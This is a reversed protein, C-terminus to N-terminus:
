EKPKNEPLPGLRPVRYEEGSEQWVFGTIRSKEGIEFKLQADLMHVFFLEEDQPAIELKSGKGIRVHFTGSERTIYVKLKDSGYVGPYRAIMEPVLSAAKRGRNWPTHLLWIHFTEEGFGIKRAARWSAENIVYNSWYPTHRGTHCFRALPACTLPCFGRGRYPEATAVVFEVYEDPPYASYAISAITDGELLCFGVGNRAFGEPDPWVRSFDPDLADPIRRAIEADIECMRFGEPVRAEWDEFAFAARPAMTMAVRDVPYVEQGMAVRFAEIWELTPPNIFRIHATRPGLALVDLVFEAADLGSASGNIFTTGHHPALLAVSPNEDSDVYVRADKSELAATIAPADYPFDRFFTWAKAIENGTWEHPM